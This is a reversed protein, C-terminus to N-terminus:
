LVVRRRIQAIIFQFRGALFDFLHYEIPGSQFCRSIILAVNKTSVNFGGNHLVLFPLLASVSILLFVLLRIRALM